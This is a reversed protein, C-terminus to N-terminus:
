DVLYTWVSLKSLGYKKLYTNLRKLLSEKAREFASILENKDNESLKKWKTTDNLNENWSGYHCGYDCTYHQLKCGPKQSYYHGTLSVYADHEKLNKIRRNYEELNEKIFYDVDTRAHHAMNSARDEDEEDSIGCYGYGFCFHKKINQREVEILWGDETEVVQEANKSCFEVMKPDDWVLKLNEKYLEKLEKQSRM